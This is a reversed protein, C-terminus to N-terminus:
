IKKHVYIEGSLIIYIYSSYEGERELITGPKNSDGGGFYEVEEFSNLINKRKIKTIDSYYPLIKSLTSIM